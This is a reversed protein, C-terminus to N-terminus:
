PTSLQDVESGVGWAGLGGPLRCGLDEYFRSNQHLLRLPHQILTDLRVAITSASANAVPLGQGGQLMPM